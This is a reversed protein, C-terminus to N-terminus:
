AVAFNGEVADRGDCKVVFAAAAIDAALIAESNLPVPAKFRASIRVVRRGTAQELAACAKGVTHMGHIIPARLGMMRASWRWLHIPNWDGSVAAYQRGSSSALRWRGLEAGGTRAEAQRQSAQRAQGRVALYTSTCTFVLGARQEASTTLRCHVAGKGDPPAIELETKLVLRGVRDVAAHEVLDNAVHIMGPIRFPFDRTLMTALHARQAILYLFTLPVADPAFGLLANYRRVSGSEIGELRYESRIPAAGGGRRRFLARLLIWPSM